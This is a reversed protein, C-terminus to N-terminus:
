DTTSRSRRRLRYIVFWIYSVLLVACIGGIAHPADPKSACDMVAAIGAPTFVAAAFWLLKPARQRQATDVGGSALLVVLLNFAFLIVVVFALRPYPPVTGRLVLLTGSSIAIVDFVFLGILVSFARGLKFSAFM